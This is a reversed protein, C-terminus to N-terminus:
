GLGSAHVGANPHIRLVPWVEVGGDHDTPIRRASGGLGGARERVVAAAGLHHGDGERWAVDMAWTWRGRAWQQQQLAVDGRWAIDLAWM